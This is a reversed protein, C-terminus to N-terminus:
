FATGICSTVLMLMETTEGKFILGIQQQFTKKRLAAKAMTIRSKIERTYRADNAIMSGLYNLYEVSALQRQDIMIQVPFPERSNGMVKTEEVNV